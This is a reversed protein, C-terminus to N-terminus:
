HLIYKACNIRTSGALLATLSLDKELHLIYKACNIRTSGVLLATLSLDKELSTHM